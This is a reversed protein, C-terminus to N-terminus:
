NSFMKPHAVIYDAIAGEVSECWGLDRDIEDFFETYREPADDRFAFLIDCRIERDRPIPEGKFIRDRVSSLADAAQNARITKLTLFTEEGYDGSSNALFQRLGGNTNEWIFATVLMVHREGENIRVLFEDPHKGDRAIPWVIQNRVEQFLEHKYKSTRILEDILAM